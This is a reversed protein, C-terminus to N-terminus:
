SSRPPPPPPDLVSRIQELRAVLDCVDAPAWGVTMQQFLWGALGLDVVTRGGLRHYADIARRNV